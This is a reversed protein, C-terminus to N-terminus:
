NQSFTNGWIWVAQFASRKIHLRLADESPPLERFSRSRKYVNFRATNLTVFEDAYVYAIFENLVGVSSDMTVNSPSWSLAQFADSLIARRPYSMWAKFLFNKSKKYFATTSDYGSFCHFFKIGSAIETGLKQHTDNLNILRENIGTNFLVFIETKNELNLLREM